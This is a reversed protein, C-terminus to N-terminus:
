RKASSTKAANEPSIDKKTKVIDDDDKKDESKLEPEPKKDDESQNTKLAVVEVNSADSNKSKEAVVANSPM